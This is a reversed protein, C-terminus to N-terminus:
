EELKAANAEAMAGLPDLVTMLKAAEVEDLDLVLVPVLENPNTEARLHGDILELSGDALERAILADAWGIEALIGRLADAQAVPHVRWNKGSPRLDGARVRRLEKVRDRFM